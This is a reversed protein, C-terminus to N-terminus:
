NYVIDQWWRHAPIAFHVIAEIPQLLGDSVLLEMADGCCACSAEIRADASLMAPIGLADWICNGFFLADGGRVVFPTPIASFPNAMLVERNGRQLVLQKAAALRELSERVLAEPLRLLESLQQAKPPVGTKLTVDYVGARVRVDQEEVTM